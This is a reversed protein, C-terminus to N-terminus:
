NKKYYTKIADEFDKNTMFNNNLSNYSTGKKFKKFKSYKKELNQVSPSCIVFYKKCDYTYYSDSISIMEEHLKEGPRLGIVKISKGKNIFKALDYLRYSKTKQVFIEGGYMNKHALIIIAIAEDILTNFRTMDKSTITLPQNKKKKDLFCLFLRVEAVWYM